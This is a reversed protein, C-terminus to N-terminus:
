QELLEFEEKNLLTTVFHLAIFLTALPNLM